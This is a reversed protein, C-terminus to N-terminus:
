YLLLLCVHAYKLSIRTCVCSGEVAEDDTTMTITAQSGNKEARDMARGGMNKLSSWTHM